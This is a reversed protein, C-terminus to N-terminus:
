QFLYDASTLFVAEYKMTNGLYEAPIALIKQSKPAYMYYEQRNMLFSMIDTASM